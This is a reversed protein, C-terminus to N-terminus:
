VEKLRYLHDAWTLLMEKLELHDSWGEPICGDGLLAGVFSGTVFAISSSMGRCNASLAMAKAYDEGMLACYVGTALIKEAGQIGAEPHYENPNLEALASEPPVNCEAMHLAYQLAEQVGEIYNYQNLCGLAQYGAQDLDVGNCVQAIMYAYCGAALYASPNGHTTAALSAAVEFAVEPTAHLFFGVPAVRTLASSDNYDNLPEQMTGMMMTSLASLMQESPNRPSYLEEYNLITKVGITELAVPEHEHKHILYEDALVGTQTYYWRLLSMYGGSAAYTGIERHAMRIYAWELGDMTFLAMQTDDSLMLMGTREDIHPSQVGNTLFDEPIDDMFKEPFEGYERYYHWQEMTYGCTDAIAAGLLCGYYRSKLEIFSHNEKM